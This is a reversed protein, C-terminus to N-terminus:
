SLNIARVTHEDPLKRLISWLIKREAAQERQLDDLLLRVASHTIKIEQASLAMTVIGLEDPEDDLETLVRRALRRIQPHHAQDSIFLRLARQAVSREDPAVLLRFAPELVPTSESTEIM